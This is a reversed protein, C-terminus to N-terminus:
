SSMNGDVPALPIGAQCGTGQWQPRGPHAAKARPGQGKTGEQDRCGRTDGRNRSPAAASCAGHHTPPMMTPATRHRQATAQGAVQDGARHTRSIKERRCPWCVLGVLVLVCGLGPCVSGALRGDLLACSSHLLGVRRPPHLHGPDVLMCANTANCQMLLRARCRGDDHVLVCATGNWISGTAPLLPLGAEAASHPTGGVGGPHRTVSQSHWGRYLVHLSDSSMEDMIPKFVASCVAQLHGSEVGGTLRHVPSVLDFQRLWGRSVRTWVGRISSLVGRRARRDAAARRCSAVESRQRRTSALQSSCSCSPLPPRSSSVAVVWLGPDSERLTSSDPPLLGDRHIAPHHRM